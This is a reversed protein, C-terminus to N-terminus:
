VHRRRAVIGLGALGVGLMLWSAPEPVALAVLFGRIEGGPDNPTHINLYSQNGIIGNLLFTRAMDVTGGNASLFAPNYTTADSLNFVREYLGSRVGLPFDNFPLAVPATGTLPAATCCHLHAAVTDGLLDVFPMSLSMTMAVDDIVITALSAGPSPNPPAESPGSMTSRYSTTVAFAASSVLMTLALALSSAIRKM